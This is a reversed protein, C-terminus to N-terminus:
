GRRLVRWSLGLEKGKLNLTHYFEGM